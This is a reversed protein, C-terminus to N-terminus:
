ICLNTLNYFFKIKLRYIIIWVFNQKNMLVRQLDNFDNFNNNYANYDNRQDVRCTLKCDRYNGVRTSVSAQSWDSGVKVRTCLHACSWPRMEANITTIM